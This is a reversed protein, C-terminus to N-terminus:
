EWSLRPATGLKAPGLFMQGNRITFSTKIAPKGDSSTKALLNLAIRALGADSARMRGGDVLATLIKDYGRVEGSFAGVPQLEEDLALTGLGTASVGGWRLGFNDVEITGGGDRWATLAETLRGNPLAGKITAAFELEDLKAGLPGLAAPAEVRHAAVAIAMKPDGHRGGPESPVEIWADTSGLQIQSIAHLDAERLRLWLNWGGEPPIWVVGEANQTVFKVPMKDGPAVLDATIGDSATVQWDTLNWPRAVGSLSRIRVEPSPIRAGDRMKASELEIRFAVPFGTVRMKEWSIDFKDARSSQVWAVLGDQINGAAHFWFASYAGAVVVLLVALLVLALRTSRRM